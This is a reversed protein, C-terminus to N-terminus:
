WNTLYWVVSRMYYLQENIGPRDNRLTFTRYESVGSSITKVVLDVGMLISAFTDVMSDEMVKVRKDMNDKMSLDKLRLDYVSLDDVSLDMAVLDKTLPEEVMDAKRRRLVHQRVEILHANFIELQEQFLQLPEDWIFLVEQRIDYKDALPLLVKTVLSVLLKSLDVFIFAKIGAAVSVASCLDHKSGTGKCTKRVNFVGIIEYVTGAHGDGGGLNLSNHLITSFLSSVMVVPDADNDVGAGGAPQVSPQIISNWDADKLKTCIFEKFGDPRISKTYLALGEMCPLYITGTLVKPARQTGFVVSSIDSLNRSAAYISGNGFGHVVDHWLPINSTSISCEYCFRSVGFSRALYLGLWSSKSKAANREADELMITYFNGDSIGDFVLTDWLSMCLGRTCLGLLNIHFINLQSSFESCIKRRRKLENRAERNHTLELPNERIFLAFELCDKLLKISRLLGGRYINKLPCVVGSVIGASICDDYKRGPEYMYSCHPICSDHTGANEVFISCGGPQDHMRQVDQLLCDVLGLGISLCTAHVPGHVPQQIVAQTAALYVLLANWAKKFIQLFAFLTMDFASLTVCGHSFVVACSLM